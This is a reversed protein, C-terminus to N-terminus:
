EPFIRRLSDAYEEDREQKETKETFIRHLSHSFDEDRERQDSQRVCLDDFMETLDRERRTKPDSFTRRFAKWHWIQDKPIVPLQCSNM